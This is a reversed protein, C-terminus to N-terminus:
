TILGNAQLNINRIATITSQIVNKTQKVDTAHTIHPFVDLEADIKSVLDLFLKKVFKIGDSYDLTKGQYEPFHKELPVVQIKLKFIDSKNLFLILPKRKLFPNDLVEKLIELDRKIANRPLEDEESVEQDYTSIASIFTIIFVKDFHHIWKKRESKQGGVDIVKLKMDATNLTFEQVGSTPKRVNVWDNITPVFSKQFILMPMRSVMYVAYDPLVLSTTSYFEKIFKDNLFLQVIEGFRSLKDQDLQSLNEMTQISIAEITLAMNSGIKDVLQKNKLVADAIPQVSSLVNEYMTWKLEKIEEDTLQHDSFLKIQKMFTSKGANQAGLLITSITQEFNKKDKKIISDIERSHRIEESAINGM